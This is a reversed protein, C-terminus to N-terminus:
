KEGSLTIATLDACAQNVSYSSTDSWVSKGWMARNPEVTNKGWMAREGFTDNKGWMAREGWLQDGSLINAGWLSGGLLSQTVNIIVNGDDQREATPSMAYGSAVVDSRIAAPINLYGAGYTFVDGVGNPNTWKDATLMLRAKITDPTLRPELQLMLAAAGAVVPAAMSTGSMTFYDSSMGLKTTNMYAKWPVGHVNRYITDLLSGTSLSSVVRNGAAIIDPKVVFDLRTPGRSSYTAITDNERTGDVSKMAGVTIVYPSNGPSTISGYNTGFGENDAGETETANERGDNGAAAVVVIGAKWAVEAALCLPDTLYSEGVEHGVSLNMVRINHLVKNAVVWSMGALVQSVKGGGNADLVRVNIVHAQPAVGYYTQYCNWGSSLKGNGAIIGAVHTGHGCKDDASLLSDSAFNMNSVVRTGFLGGGSFDSSSRVGSDVVAVGIGKGTAGYQSWAVNAGSSSVTFADTKRVTVDSSVHRVFEYGLLTALKRQPVRVAVSQIFSLNKYVYGGIKALRAQEKPTVPSKTRLILDVHGGAKSKLAQGVFHDHTAQYGFASVTGFVAAVTTAVRACFHTSTGWYVQMFFEGSKGL